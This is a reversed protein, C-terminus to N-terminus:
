NSNNPGNDVGGNLYTRMDKSHHVWEFYFNFVMIQVYVGGSFSLYLSLVKWRDSIGLSIFNHQSYSYQM